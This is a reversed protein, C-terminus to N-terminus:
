QVLNPHNPSAAHCNTPLDWIYIYTYTHTHSWSYSPINWHTLGEVPWSTCSCTAEAWKHNQTYDHGPFVTNRHHDSDSHFTKTEHHGFIYIYITINVYMLNLNAQKTTDFQAKLFRYICSSIYKWWIDYIGVWIQHDHIIMFINTYIYTKKLSCIM